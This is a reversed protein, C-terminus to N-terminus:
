MLGNDVGCHCRVEVRRYFHHGAEERRYIQRQFLGPHKGYVTSAAFLMPSTLNGGSKELLRSQSQRGVNDGRKDMTCALFCIIQVYVGEEYERNHIGCYPPM